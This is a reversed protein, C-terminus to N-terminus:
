SISIIQNYFLFFLIFHCVKNVDGQTKELLRIIWPGNINVGATALEALQSAYKTKLEERQQRRSLNSDDGEHHHHHRRQHHPHDDRQLHARVQEIDGNFREM